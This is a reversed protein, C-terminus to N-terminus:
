NVKLVYLQYCYNIATMHLYHYLESYLVLFRLKLIVKEFLYPLPSFFFKNRSRHWIRPFFTKQHDVPFVCM